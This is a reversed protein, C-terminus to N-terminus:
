SGKVFGSYDSSRACSGAALDPPRVTLCSFGTLLSVGYENLVFKFTSNAVAGPEGLATKEKEDSNQL